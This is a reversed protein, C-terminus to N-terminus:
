QRYVIRIKRNKNDIYYSYKHIPKNDLAEVTILGQEDLMRLIKNTHKPLFGNQLGFDYLNKNSLAHKQSLYDKLIQPYNSSSEKSFMVMQNHNIKFGRGEAEDMKWKADLMARMGKNHNTFFFLSFFQGSTREILFTDVYDSYNHKQLASKISKIFNLQNTTDPTSDEFIQLLLNKLSEGGPFNDPSLSKEAFRYMFYIPLFLILEVRKRSTIDKLISFNVDKYGWPDIFLLAHEKRSLKNITALIQTIIAQYYKEYYCITTNPPKEIKSIEKKIRDIKKKHPNIRSYEPDNITYDVKIANKENFKFHERITKLAEIPSGFKGNEYKGEGAFLDFLYIKEVYPNRLMINLYIGLYYTYLNIKAESHEMLNTKSDEKNFM